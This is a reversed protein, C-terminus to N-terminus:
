LLDFVYSPDTGTIVNYYVTAIKNEIRREVPLWHLDVLLPSPRPPVHEQKSAKYVLRAACNIVRQVKNM